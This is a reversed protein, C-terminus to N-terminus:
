SYLIIIVYTIDRFVKVVRMLVSVIFSEMVGYPRCGLHCM